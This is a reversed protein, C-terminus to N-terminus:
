NIEMLKYIIKWLDYIDYFIINYLKQIQWRIVLYLSDNKDLNKTLLKRYNKLDSKIQDPESEDTRDSSIPVNKAIKVTM